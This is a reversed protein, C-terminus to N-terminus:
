FFQFINNRFKYRENPWSGAPFNISLSQRLIDGLKKPQFPPFNPLKVKNKDAFFDFYEVQEVNLRSM